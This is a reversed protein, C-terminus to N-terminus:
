YIQTKESRKRKKLSFIIALVILIPLIIWLNQTSVTSPALTPAPTMTTIFSETQTVFLTLQATETSYLNSSTMRSSTVQAALFVSAQVLQRNFLIIYFQTSRNVRYYEMSPSWDLTYSTQLTAAKQSSPNAYSGVICFADPYNVEMLYFEIPNDSKFSISVRDGPMANFPFTVSCGPNYISHLVLNGGYISSTTTLTFQTVGQTYTAYSISTM